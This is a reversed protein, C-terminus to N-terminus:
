GLSHSTPPPSSAAPTAEPTLGSRWKDYIKHLVGIGGIAFSGLSGVTAVAVFADLPDRLAEFDVVKLLVLLALVAGSAFSTVTVVAGAALYVNSSCM